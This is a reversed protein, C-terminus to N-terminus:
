EKRQKMMQAMYADWDMEEAKKREAQERRIRADEEQKWKSYCAYHAGHEMEWKWDTSSGEIKGSSAAIVQEGCHRCYVPIMMSRYAFDREFPDSIDNFNKFPMGYQQLHHKRAM